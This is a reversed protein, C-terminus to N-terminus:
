AARRVTAEIHSTAQLRPNWVPWPPGALQYTVGAITIRDNTDAVTGVPLFLRGTESEVNTLGTEDDRVTQQVLCAVTSSVVVDTPNGYEDPPGSQTVRELTGSQTMLHTPDM